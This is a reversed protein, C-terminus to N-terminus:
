RIKERAAKLEEVLGYPIKVSGVKINSKAAGHCDSGGTVLLGRKKALGLYFEVTQPPHEPYYVELGM